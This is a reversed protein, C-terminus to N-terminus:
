RLSLQQRIEEKLNRCKRSVKLWDPLPTRHRPDCVVIGTCYVGALMSFDSRTCILINSKALSIFTEMASSGAHYTIDPFLSFDALEEVSGNTHLHIEPKHGAQCAVQFVQELISITHANTTFRHGTDADGICVDGRRVHVGIKFATSEEGSLQQSNFAIQLKKSVETGHAPALECFAHFHQETLVVAKKWLTPNKLYNELGVVQMTSPNLLSNEIDMKLLQEWAEAWENPPLDAHALDEFPAHVYKFGYAQSFCMASFKAM